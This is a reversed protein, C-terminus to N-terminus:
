LQWSYSMSQVRVKIEEATQQTNSADQHSVTTQEGAEQKNAIPPSFGINFALSDFCDQQFLISRLCDINSHHSM